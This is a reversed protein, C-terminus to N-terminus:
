NIKITRNEIESIKTRINKRKCTKSKFQEKEGETESPLLKPQQNKVERKKRTCANLAIFKEWLVGETSDFM